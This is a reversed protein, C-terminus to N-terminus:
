ASISILRCGTDEVCRGARGITRRPPKYRLRAPEDRAPNPSRIAPRSPRAAGPTTEPDRAAHRLSHVIIEAVGAEYFVLYPYPTVVLRRLTPDDTRTGILPHLPLLAVFTKIRAQM